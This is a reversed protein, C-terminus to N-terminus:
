QRNSEGWMLKNRISTYFTNNEMRVLKLSSDAKSLCIEVSTDIAIRQSDLSVYFNKKFQRVILKIKSQDHIVIPRLTLTHAAIPTIVFCKSDPTLIPGGCSLSYATSGTPTAVILGDGFYDTVYQDDIFLSIGLLTFDDKRHISLENLAFPNNPFLETPSNVCLLTREDISYKKLILNDVLCEIGEKGVSTLFGLNGLNIGLVPTSTNMVFPLANLLTGDGGLTLLFDVNLFCNETFLQPTIDTKIDSQIDDWFPKYFFVKINKKHLSDLLFQVYEIDNEKIYRAFIGVNM